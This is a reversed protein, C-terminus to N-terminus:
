LFTDNIIHCQFRSSSHGHPSHAHPRPPFNWVRRKPKEGIGVSGPPLDGHRNEGNEPSYETATTQRVTRIQRIFDLLFTLLMETTGLCAPQTPLHHQHPPRLISLVHGPSQRIAGGQKAHQCVSEEACLDACSPNLKVVLLM